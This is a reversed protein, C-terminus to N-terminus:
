SNLLHERLTGLRDRAERTETEDKKFFFELIDGEKVGHLYRLPMHIIEEPEDAPILIAYGEDIQDVAMLIKGPKKEM